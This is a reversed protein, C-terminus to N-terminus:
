QVNIINGATFEETWLRHPVVYWFSILSPFFFWTLGKLFSFLPQEEISYIYKVGSTLFSECALVFRGMRAPPLDSKILNLISLRWCPLCPERGARSSEILFIAQALARSLEKWNWTQIGSQTMKTNCGLKEQKESAPNQRPSASTKAPLFTINKQQQQKEKKKLLPKHCHPSPPM